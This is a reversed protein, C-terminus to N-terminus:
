RDVQMIIEVLFVRGTSTLGPAYSAQSTRPVPVWGVCPHSSIKTFGILFKQGGYCTGAAPASGYIPNLPGGGTDTEGHWLCRAEVGFVLRRNASPVFLYLCSYYNKTIKVSIM